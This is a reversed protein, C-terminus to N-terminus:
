IPLVALLPPSSSVIIPLPLSSLTASSRGLLLLRFVTAQQRLVVQRVACAERPHRCLHAPDIVGVHKYSKDDCPSPLNKM